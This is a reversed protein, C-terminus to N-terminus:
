LRRRTRSYPPLAHAPFSSSLLRQSSLPPPYEQVAFNSGCLPPYRIVSIFIAMLRRTSPFIEHTTLHAKVAGYCRQESVTVDYRPLLSIEFLAVVACFLSQICSLVVSDDFSIFNTIKMSIAGMWSLICRGDDIVRVLPRGSGNGNGNGRGGGKCLGRRM